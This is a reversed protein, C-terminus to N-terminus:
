VTAGSTTCGTQSCGNPRGGSSGRPRPVRNPRRGRGGATEKGNSDPLAGRRFFLSADTPHHIDVEVVTTDVRLKRGRLVKQERAKRLLLRNLEELTKPGYSRAETEACPGRAPTPSEVGKFSPTQKM